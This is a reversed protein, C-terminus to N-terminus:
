DLVSYVSTPSKYEPVLAKMGRVIDMSGERRSAEILTMIRERVEFYDYERVKAIKIKPHFTPVTTEKDDLLEEYLKEGARLGTFRIEVDKGSMRIMRRALEVIKVPEGMDFVFIEGGEGMTGAELVLRCAEPILMFYRIIDPHTVTLPGGEAIQKKFLPIVSGNSGLVNGFRTTVFRTAGSIEGRRLAEDLSQVYIECIRKSCGMVNTPNVAKDTSVMVFKRCGYRVALDATVVTGGVNNLIAQRPNDEMMPVHKYAAAHLVVEPRFEKFIAEMTPEDAISAVITHAKIPPYERSMMLRIDHLPTEAQDILILEGAEFEAAQRTLESGISGAAGTILVRKGRIQRGIEEMDVEIKDRPLLDEAKIEHLNQYSLDSQGDWDVADPFFLMRVGSDILADALEKNGRLDTIKLPSVILVGINHKKMVGPLTADAKFVDHGLLRKGVMSPQDTAFGRVAYPSSPNKIINHAIAVGGERVGYIFAGVKDPRSFRGEYLLKLWIRYLWMACLALLSGLLLVEVPVDRVVEFHNFIPRGLLSLGLGLIMALGLRQLDYFTSYRVIGSYTHFLRFSLLFFLLYPLFAPLMVTFSALTESASSLVVNAGMFGALVLLLDLFLVTWYPMAGRSFYYDFIRFKKGM